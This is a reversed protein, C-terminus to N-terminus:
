IYIQNKKSLYISFVLYSHLVDATCTTEAGFFVDFTLVIKFTTMKLCEQIKKGAVKYIFYIKLIVFLITYYKASLVIVTIFHCLFLRIQCFYM